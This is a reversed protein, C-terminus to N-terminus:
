ITTPDGVSPLDGADIGGGQIGFTAAVVDIIGFVAVIVFLVIIGYIMKQRADKRGDETNSMLFEILSWIFWILAIVFLIPLVLDLLDKIKMLINDITTVGGAVQAAAFYPLALLGLSGFSAILKAKIM